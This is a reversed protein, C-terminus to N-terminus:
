NSLGLWLDDHYIVASYVGLPYTVIWLKGNAPATASLEYDLWGATPTSIVYSALVSGNKNGQINIIYGNGSGPIVSIASVYVYGKLKYQQGSTLNKVQQILKLDSGGFGVEIKAAYTGKYVTDSVIEVDASDQQDWGPDAGFGIESNEFGSNSLLSATGNGSDDSFSVSISRNSDGASGLSTLETDNGQNTAVVMVSAVGLTPNNNANDDDSITGIAGDLDEDSDNIIERIAMNMGGEAAYFARVTNLRDVAMFQDHSVVLILGVVAYEALLVMVVVAIIIIGKRNHKLLININDEYMIM